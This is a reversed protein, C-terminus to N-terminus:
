GVDTPHLMMSFRSSDAINSSQLRSVNKISPFLIIVKSFSNTKSYNNNNNNALHSGASIQFLFDYLQNITYFTLQGGNCNGQPQLRRPPSKWRFKCEAATSAISIANPACRKFISRCIVRTISTCQNLYKVRKSRRM